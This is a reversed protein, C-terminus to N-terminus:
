WGCAVPRRSTIPEQFDKMWSGLDTQTSAAVRGAEGGEQKTAELGKEM